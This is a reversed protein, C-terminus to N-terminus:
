REGTGAVGRIGLIINFYVQCVFQGYKLLGRQLDPGSIQIASIGYVAVVDSFEEIRFVEGVDVDMHDIELYFTVLTKEGCCSFAIQIRVYHDGDFVFGFQLLYIADSCFNAAVADMQHTGMRDAHSIIMQIRGFEKHAHYPDVFFDFKMKIKPQIPLGM